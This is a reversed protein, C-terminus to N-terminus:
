YNGRYLYLILKLIATNNTSFRILVMNLSWMNKQDNMFCMIKSRDCNVHALVPTFTFCANNHSHCKKTNSFIVILTSNISITVNLSLIFEFIHHM